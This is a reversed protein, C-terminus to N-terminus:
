CLVENLQWTLRIWFYLWSFLFFFFTELSEQWGRLSLSQTNVVQAECQQVSNTIILKKERKKEFINEYSKWDNMMIWTSTLNFKFLYLYWPCTLKSKWIWTSPYFYFILSFVRGFFFSFFLCILEMNKAHM